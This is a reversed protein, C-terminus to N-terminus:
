YTISVLLSRLVTERGIADDVELALRALSLFPSLGFHLVYHEGFRDKSFDTVFSSIARLSCNRRKCCTGGGRKPTSEEIQLQRRYSSYNPLTYFKDNPFPNFRRYKLHM